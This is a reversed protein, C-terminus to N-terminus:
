NDNEERSQEGESIDELTPKMMFNKNANTSVTESKIMIEKDHIEEKKM